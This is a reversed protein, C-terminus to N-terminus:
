CASATSSTLSRTKSNQCQDRSTPRHHRPLPLAHLLLFANKTHTLSRTTSLPMFRTSSSHETPRSSCVEVISNYVGRKRAVELVKPSVDLGTIYSNFQEFGKERLAGGSLGDGCGADLIRYAATRGEPDAHKALLAAAQKPMDYGWEDVSATYQEAWGDYLIKVSATDMGEGAVGHAGDTFFGHSEDGRPVLADAAAAPAAAYALTVLLRATTRQM